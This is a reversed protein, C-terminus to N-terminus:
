KAQKIEYNAFLVGRSENIVSWSRFDGFNFVSRKLNAVRNPVASAVGM